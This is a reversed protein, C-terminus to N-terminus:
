SPPIIVREASSFFSCICERIHDALFCEGELDLM